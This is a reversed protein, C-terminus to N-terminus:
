KIIIKYAKENIIVVYFGAPLSTTKTEGAAITITKVMKGTANYIMANGSSFSTIYLQNENTYINNDENISENSTTFDINIYIEQQVRLIIVSFSGDGNDIIKVGESDPVTTRNTSIVPMKGANEGTPQITFEFDKTSEIYHTGSNKSIIANSIHPIHVPRLVVPIEGEELSIEIFKCTRPDKIYIAEEEELNKIEHEYISDTPSKWSRGGNLSYLAYGSNNEIKVELDGKYQVTGRTYKIDYDIENICIFPLYEDLEQNKWIEIGFFGNDNLEDPVRDTHFVIDMMRAGHPMLFKERVLSINNEIDNPFFPPSPYSKFWVYVTSDPHLSQDLELRLTYPCGEYLVPIPGYKDIYVKAVASDRKFAFAPDTNSPWNLGFLEPNVEPNNNELIYLTDIKPYLQQANASFFFGNLLFFVVVLNKNM